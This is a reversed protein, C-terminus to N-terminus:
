GLYLGFVSKIFEFIRGRYRRYNWYIRQKSGFHRRFFNSTDAYANRKFCGYLLKDLKALSCQQTKTQNKNEHAM